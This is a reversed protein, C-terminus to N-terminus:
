NDYFIKGGKLAEFYSELGSFHPKPLEQETYWGWGECKDPEMVTPEGSEWDAITGIDIYHKPAYDKLNLLRVFRINKIEIGAEERVERRACDEISEMYELHGGPFSYQGGGHSGKRKGLLFKGDKMVMVGLGVRVDQENM